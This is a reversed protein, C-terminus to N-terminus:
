RSEGFVEFKVGREEYQYKEKAAQFEANSISHANGYRFYSNCMKLWITTLYRKDLCKLINGELNDAQKSPRIKGSTRTIRSTGFTVLEYLELAMLKEIADMQEYRPHVKFREWLLLHFKQIGEKTVDDIFTAAQVNTTIGMDQHIAGEVISKDHGETLAIAYYENDSAVLSPYLGCIFAKNHKGLISGNFVLKLRGKNGPSSKGIQLVNDGNIVTYIYDTAPIDDLTHVQSVDGHKKLSNLIKEKHSM